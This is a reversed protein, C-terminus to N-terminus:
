VVLDVDDNFKALAVKCSSLPYGTKRRLKSLNSFVISSTFINRYNKICITRKLLFDM